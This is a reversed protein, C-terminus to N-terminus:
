KKKRDNWDLGGSKWVYILGVLLIFLFIGMEIVGVFGLKKYLVAWPYMFVTEIDFILFCMAVIFFKVSFRGRAGGSAAKGVGCEYPEGKRPNDRRPGIFSSVLIFIVPILAALGIVLFFPLYKQILEM